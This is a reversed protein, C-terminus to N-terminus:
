LRGLRSVDGGLWRIGRAGRRGPPARVPVVDRGPVVVEDAVLAALVLAADDEWAHQAQEVNLGALVHEVDRAALSHQGADEVLAAGADGADVGGALEDLKGALAAVRRDM